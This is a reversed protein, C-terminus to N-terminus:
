IILNFVTFKERSNINVNGLRLFLKDVDVITCGSVM